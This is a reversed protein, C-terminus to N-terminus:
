NHKIGLYRMNQSEIHDGILGTSRQIDKDIGIGIVQDQLIDFSEKLINIRQTVDLLDLYIEIEELTSGGRIVPWCYTDFFDWDSLVGLSDELDIEERDAYHIVMQDWAYSQDTLDFYRNKLDNEKNVEELRSQKISQLKEENKFNM